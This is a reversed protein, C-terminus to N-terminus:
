QLLTYDAENYQEVRQLMERYRESNERDPYRVNFQRFRWFAISLCSFRVFQPLQQRELESLPRVREYSRIFTQYLPRSLTNTKKPFCFGVITMAVDLVLPGICAEEFDVVGILSDDDSWLANDPFLDGHLLGRPLSQDETYADVERRLLKVFPFVAFATDRIEACILQL